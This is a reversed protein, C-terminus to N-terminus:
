QPMRAAKEPRTIQVRIRQQRMPPTYEESSTNNGQGNEADTKLTYVQLPNHNKRGKRKRYYTLAVLSLIIIIAVVVIVVVLLTSSHGSGPGSSSSSSSLAAGGSSGRSSGRIHLTHLIPPHAHHHSPNQTRKLYYSYRLITHTTHTKLYVKLM